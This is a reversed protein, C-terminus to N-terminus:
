DNINDFLGTLISKVHILDYEGSKLDTIKYEISNKSAKDATSPDILRGRVARYNILFIVPYYDEPKSYKVRIQIEEFQEKTIVGAKLKENAGRLIGAKNNAIESAHSDGTVIQNLYRMCLNRPNSSGPQLFADFAETCWVFHVDNYYEKDILYAMETGTSYLLFDSLKSKSMNM